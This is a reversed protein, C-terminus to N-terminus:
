RRGQTPYRNVRYFTKVEETERYLPGRREDYSLTDAVAHGGLPTASAAAASGGAALLRLFSRRRLAIKDEGDMQQEDMSADKWPLEFDLDATALGHGYRGAASRTADNPAGAKACIPLLRDQIHSVRLLSIHGLARCNFQGTNSRSAWDQSTSQGLRAVDKRAVDKSAKPPLNTVFSCASYHAGDAAAYLSV